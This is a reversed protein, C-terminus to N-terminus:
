QETMKIIEACAVSANRANERLQQMAEYTEASIEYTTWRHNCDLCARRRRLPSNIGGGSARTELPKIKSGRCNPCIRSFAPFPRM